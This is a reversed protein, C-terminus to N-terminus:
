SIVFGKRMREKAYTLFFNVNERFSLRGPRLSELEEVIRNVHKRVQEITYNEEIYKIGNRQIKKYLEENEILEMVCEAFGAPSDSILINERHKLGMGQAGIPTTVVPRGHAMAEGIKGKMGAGYRLPAISIYSNHLYPTISPVHGTVNIHESTLAYVESTPNSGVIDVKIGHVEERILPMIENCFHLVADINPAHSFGGVFVLRNKEPIKDSLHLSHINPIIRVRLGPVDSTLVAADEDTVAVVMDARRYSELELRKTREAERLDEFRKTVEYKAFARYYAVDVSDIIIPCRPQLLRIRPLYYEVLRYFEFIVACFRQGRMLNAFALKDGALLRIGLDRLSCFYKEDSNKLVPTLYTIQFLSSLIKLLSFFRLDGSNMDYRTIDPAIILLNDQM